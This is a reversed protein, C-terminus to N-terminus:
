LIFKLPLYEILIKIIKKSLSVWIPCAGAILPYGPWSSTCAYVCRTQASRGNGNRNGQNINKVTFSKLHGPFSNLKENSRSGGSGGREKGTGKKGVEKGNKLM